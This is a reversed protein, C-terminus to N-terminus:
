VLNAQKLTKSGFDNEIIDRCIDNTDAGPKGIKKLADQADSDADAWVTGKENIGFSVRNDGDGLGDVFGDIIWGTAFMPMKLQKMPVNMVKDLASKTAGTVRTFNIGIPRAASKLGFTIEIVGNVASNKFFRVPDGGHQKHEGMDTGEHETGKHSTGLEGQAQAVMFQALAKEYQVQQAAAKKIGEGADFAEIDKKKEALKSPDARVVGKDAKEQANLKKSAGEEMPVLASEMGAFFGAKSDGADALAAAVVGGIAEKMADDIGSQVAAEIAKSTGTYLAAGAMTSLGGTASALAGAIAVKQIADGASPPDAENLRGHVERVAIGRFKFTSAVEARADNYAQELEDIAADADGDMQVAAGGGGPKGSLLDEASRGQVVRDAVADAHKEHADGTRGVGGPLDVGQKQQVVHAAEHAATHLDPAGAFAVHDGTAYASAGMSRASDAAKGDTHARVGSVDHAGFSRQIASFHPMAGGAGATGQAAAAHVDAADGRAGADAQVPALMQEQEDFTQGRLKARVDNGRPAAPTTPTVDPRVSGPTRNREYM